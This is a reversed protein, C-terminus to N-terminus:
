HRHSLEVRPLLNMLCQKIYEIQKESACWFYFYLDFLIMHMWTVMLVVQYISPTQSGPHAISQLLLPSRPPPLPHSVWRVGRYVLLTHPRWPHAGSGPSQHSPLCQWPHSLRHWFHRCPGVWGLTQSHSPGRCVTGTGGRLRQHGWASGMQERQPQLRSEKQVLVM